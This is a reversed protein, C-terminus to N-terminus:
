QLHQGAEGLIGLGHRAGHPPPIRGIDFVLDITSAGDAPTQDLQVLGSVKAKILTVRSRRLEGRKKGPKTQYASRDDDCARRLAPKWPMRISASRRSVNQVAVAHSSKALM